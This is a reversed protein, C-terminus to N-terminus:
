LLIQTVKRLKLYFHILETIWLKFAVSTSAMNYEVTIHKVNLLLM